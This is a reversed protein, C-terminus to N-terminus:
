PTNLEGFSVADCGLVGSDEFRILGKFDASQQFFLNGTM